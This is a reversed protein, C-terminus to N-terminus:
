PEGKPKRLMEVARQAREELDVLSNVWGWDFGEAALSAKGWRQELTKIADRVARSKTILQSLEREAQKQKQDM